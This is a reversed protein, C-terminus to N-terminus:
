SPRSLSRGDAVDRIASLLDMDRIQKVILGWAGATVSASVFEPDDSSTLILCRTDPLLTHLERCLDIGNGDPLRADLVAVDPRTARIRTLGEAITAAEGVVAMDGATEVLDRIGQRVSDHDDLVFVTIMRM